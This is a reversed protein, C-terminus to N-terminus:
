CNGPVHDISMKTYSKQMNLAFMSNYLNIINYSCCFDKSLQKEPARHPQGELLKINHKKKKCRADTCQNSYKIAFEDHASPFNQEKVMERPNFASIAYYLLHFFIEDIYHEDRRLILPGVKYVLNM